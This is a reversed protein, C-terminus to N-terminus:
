HITAKLLATAAEMPAVGAYKIAGLLVLVLILGAFLPTLIKGISNLITSRHIAIWYAAVFYLVTYIFLSLTSSIGMSALSSEFPQISISYSVTATRPIAFFPGITLYLLTTFTIGFGKGARSSLDLLDQAGSYGMVLVGLLPLGVGMIIFGIMAVSLNSGANQGLFAPFILNGAGFFLAFLMLGISIYSNKKLFKLM